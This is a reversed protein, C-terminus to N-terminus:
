TKKKRDSHQKPVLYLFIFRILRSKNTMKSMIIRKKTVDLRRAACSLSAGVLRWIFALYLIMKMVSVFLHM